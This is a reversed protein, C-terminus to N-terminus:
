VPMNMIDRYASLLRNRVQLTAEFGVSARQREVMVQVLDHTEGREYADTARAAQAQQSNVSKLAEVMTAGFNDAPGGIAAPDSSPATVGGSGSARQLAANQSLIASRMQMLRGADISSMVYNLGKM